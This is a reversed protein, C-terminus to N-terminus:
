SVPMSKPHLSCGNTEVLSPRHGPIYRSVRRITYRRRLPKPKAKTDEPTPQDNRCQKGESSHELKPPNRQHVYSQPNAHISSENIPRQISTRSESGVVTDLNISGTAATITSRRKCQDRSHEQCVRKSVSLHSLLDSLQALDEESSENRRKNSQSASLMQLPSQDSTPYNEM